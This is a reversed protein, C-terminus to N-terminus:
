EFKIQIHNQRYTQKGTQAIWIYFNWDDDLKLMFETLTCYTTKLFQKSVITKLSLM